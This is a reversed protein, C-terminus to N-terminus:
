EEKGWYDVLKSYLELGEKLITSHYHTIHFWNLIIDIENHTLEIPEKM